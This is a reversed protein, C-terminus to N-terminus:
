AASALVQAIVFSFPVGNYNPTNPGQQTCFTVEYYDWPQTLFDYYLGTNAINKPGYPQFGARYQMAMEEPLEFGAFQNHLGNM